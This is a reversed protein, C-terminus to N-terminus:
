QRQLVRTFGHMDDYGRRRMRNRLRHLERQQTLLEMVTDDYVLKDDVDRPGEKKKAHKAYLSEYENEWRCRSWSGPKTLTWFLWRFKSEKSDRHAVGSYKFVFSTAAFTVLLTMVLGVYGWIRGHKGLATTVLAGISLLSLTLVLCGVARDIFTYPTSCGSTVWEPVTAM